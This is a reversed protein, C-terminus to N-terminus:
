AKLEEMGEVGDMWGVGVAFTFYRDIDSNAIDLGFFYKLLRQM